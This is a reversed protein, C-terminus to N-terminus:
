PQWGPAGTQRVETWRRLLLCVLAGGVAVIAVAGRNAPASFVLRDLGILGYWLMGGSGVGTALMEIQRCRRLSWSQPSAGEQLAAMIEDVQSEPVPAQVAGIERIANVLRVVGAEAESAASKELYRARDSGGKQVANILRELAEPDIQHDAGPRRGPLRRGAM